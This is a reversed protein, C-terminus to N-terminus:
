VVTERMKMPLSSGRQPLSVKLETTLLEHRCLIAGTACSAKNKLHEKFKLNASILAGPKCQVGGTVLRVVVILRRKLRM